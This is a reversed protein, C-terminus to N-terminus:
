KINKEILFLIVRCINTIADNIVVLELLILCFTIWPHQLMFQDM